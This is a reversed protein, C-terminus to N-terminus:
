VPQMVTAVPKLIEYGLSKLFDISFQELAKLEEPNDSVVVKIIM